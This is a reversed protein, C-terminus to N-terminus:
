STRHHTCVLASVTKLLREIVASKFSILKKGGRVDRDNWAVLTLDLTLATAALLGDNASVSRIASIGGMSRHSANDIGATM